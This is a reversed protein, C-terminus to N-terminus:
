ENIDAFDLLSTTLYKMNQRFQGFKKELKDFKKM